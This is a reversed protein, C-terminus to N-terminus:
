HTHQVVTKALMAPFEVLPAPKEDPELGQRRPQPPIRLPQM